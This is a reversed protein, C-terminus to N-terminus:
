EARLATTSAAACTATGLADAISISLGGLPLDASGLVHVFSAPLV